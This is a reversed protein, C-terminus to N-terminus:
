GGDHAPLLGGSEPACACIGTTTGRLASSVIRTSPAHVQLFRSWDGGDDVVLHPHCKLTEHSAGRLGAVVTFALRRSGM